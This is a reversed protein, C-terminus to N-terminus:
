TAPKDWPSVVAVMMLVPVPLFLLGFSFVAIWCFFMTAVIGFWIWGRLPAFGSRVSMWTGFSAALPLLLWILVTDRDPDDRFLNKLALLLITVVLAYLFSFGAFLRAPGGDQEPTGGEPTLTQEV